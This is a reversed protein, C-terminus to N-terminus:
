SYKGIQLGWFARLSIPTVSALLGSDSIAQPEGFVIADKSFFAREFATTPLTVPLTKAVGDVQLKSNHRAYGRIREIENLLSALVIARAKNAQQDAYQKATKQGAVGGFKRATFYSVFVSVVAVLFAGLAITDSRALDM